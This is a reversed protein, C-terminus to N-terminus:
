GYSINKGCTGCGGKYQTAATNVGVPNYSSHPSPLLGWGLGGGTPSPVNSGSAYEQRREGREQRREGTNQRGHETEKKRLEARQESTFRNTRM